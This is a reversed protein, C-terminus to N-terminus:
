CGCCEYSGVREQAQAQAADANASEREVPPPHVECGRFSNEPVLLSLFEEGEAVGKERGKFSPKPGM